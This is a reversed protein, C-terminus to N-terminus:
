SLRLNGASLTEGNLGIRSFDSCNFFDVKWLLTIGELEVEETGINEVILTIQEKKNRQVKSEIVGNENGPPVSTVMIGKKNKVLDPRNLLFM